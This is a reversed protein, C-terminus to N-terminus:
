VYGFLVWMVPLAWLMCGMILSLIIDEKRM